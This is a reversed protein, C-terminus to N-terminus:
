QKASPLSVSGSKCFGMGRTMTVCQQLNGFTGAGAPFFPESATDAASVCELCMVDQAKLSTRECRVDTSDASGRQHWANLSKINSETDPVVWEELVHAGTADEYSAFCQAWRHGLTVDLGFPADKDEDVQLRASLTTADTQVEGHRELVSPFAVASRGVGTDRRDDHRAAASGSVFTSTGRSLQSLGCLVAGALAACLAVRM